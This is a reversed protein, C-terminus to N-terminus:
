ADSGAEIGGTAPLRIRMGAQIKGADAIRNLKAIEYWRRGDNLHHRAISMLTDNKRITYWRVAITERPIRAAPSSSGARSVPRMAVASGPGHKPIVLEEGELINDRRGALQPNAQVLLDVFRVDRSQWVHRAIGSLTDNKRVRYLVVNTMAPPATSRPPAAPQASRPATAVDNGRADDRTNVAGVGRGTSEESHRALLLPPLVVRTPRPEVVPPRALAIRGTSARKAEEAEIASPRDFRGRVPVAGARRMRAGAARPTNVRQSVSMASFDTWPSPLEVLPLSMQSVLWSLGVIFAVCILLSAKVNLGM